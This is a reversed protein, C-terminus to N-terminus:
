SAKRSPSNPCNCFRTSYCTSNDPPTGVGGMNTPAAWRPAVDERVSPPGNSVWTLTM